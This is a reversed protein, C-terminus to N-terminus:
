VVCMEAKEHGGREEGGESRGKRRGRRRRKKKEGKRGDQANLDKSMVNKDVEKGSGGKVRKEERERERKVKRM